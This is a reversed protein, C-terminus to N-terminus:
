GRNLWGEALFSELGEPTVVAVTRVYDRGSLDDFTDEELSARRIGHKYKPSQPYQYYLWDAKAVDSETLEVTGTELSARGLDVGTVFLEATTFIVPLISVFHRGEIYPRMREEELLLDALGNVGKMVQTCAAEIADKDQSV